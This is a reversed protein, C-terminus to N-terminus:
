GKDSDLRLLDLDLEADQETRLHDEYSQWFADHCPCKCGGCICAEDMDDSGCKMCFAGPWGSWWHDTTGEGHLSRNAPCPAKQLQPCSPIHDTM